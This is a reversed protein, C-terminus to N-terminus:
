RPKDRAEFAAVIGNALFEAFRRRQEPSVGINEMERNSLATTFKTTDGKYDDEVFLLRALVREVKRARAEVRAHAQGALVSARREVELEFATRELRRKLRQRKASM